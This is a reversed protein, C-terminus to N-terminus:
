SQVDGPSVYYWATPDDESSRSALESHKWSLADSEGDWTPTAFPNIFAGSAGRLYFDMQAYPETNLLAGKPVKPILKLFYFRPYCAGHPTWGAKEKGIVGSHVGYDGIMLRSCAYGSNRHLLYEIVANEDTRYNEDRLKRWNINAWGNVGVGLKGSRRLPRDLQVRILEFPRRGGIKKSSPNFLRSKYDLGSSSCVTTHRVRYPKPTIPPCSKYYQTIPNGAQVGYSDRVNAAGRNPDNTNFIYNFNNSSKSLFLHLRPGPDQM